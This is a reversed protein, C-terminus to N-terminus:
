VWYFRPWVCLLLVGVSLLVGAMPEPVAAFAGAGAGGAAVAGFNGRWLQYDLTDVVGNLNADAALNSTSGQTDRWVVYDAMDVKGDHNFDGTLPATVNVLALNDFYVTAASSLGWNGNLAFYITYSSSGATLTSWRILPIAVHITQNLHGNTLGLSDVQSWAGAANQIALSENMFNVGGNQPISATDYTVDFEIRYNAHNDALALSLASLADGTLSVSADWSFGSGIQTVALSHTGETAGQTAQAVSAPKGGAFNPTQWGQVGSEWSFLSQTPAGHPPPPVGPGGYYQQLVAQAPKNQPTYGTDNSGGSYPNPDWSWWFAGDWWPKTTMVSLLAHYSDAQEQLDLTPTGGVGYPAQAAGNASQYGVETFLVQKNGLGSAQRWSDISNAENQWATTLGALTTNNSTAIPFYADIGIYDLQNWWPVNQFGGVNQGIANWNASYTLKGSFRSRMNAILNTWSANNAGQEMTNMECGISLLEVGKSQAMDAFSGIFNTYNNFWQSKDSPNINARWTNSADSVDLMPKLLVKMGLGHITDIAHEISSMTSSYRSFDPAMSNASTSSQFWWFNLAVTDTGVLSMNLLSQDSGSTSLVDSGFSTYSMGNYAPAASASAGIAVGIMMGVILVLRQMKVGGGLGGGIM